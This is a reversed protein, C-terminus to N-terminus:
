TTPLYNKYYCKLSWLRHLICDIEFQFGMFNNHKVLYKWCALFWERQLLRSWCENWFNLIEQIGIKLSFTCTFLKSITNKESGCIEVEYSLTNESKKLWKLTQGKKQGLIGRVRERAKTSRLVLTAVGFIIVELTYHIIFKPM